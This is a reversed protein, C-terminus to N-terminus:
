QSSACNHLPTEVDSNNLAKQDTCLFHYSNKHPLTCCKHQFYKAGFYLLQDAPVCSLGPIQADRHYAMWWVYSKTVQVVVIYRVKIKMCYAGAPLRNYIFEKEEINIDAECIQLLWCYLELCWITLNMTTVVLRCPMHCSFRSVIFYQMM